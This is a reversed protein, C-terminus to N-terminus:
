EASDEVEIGVSELKELVEQEIDEDDIANLCTVLCEMIVDFIELDTVSVQVTLPKAMNHM